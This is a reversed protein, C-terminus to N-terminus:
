PQQLACIQLLELLPSQTVLVHWALQPTIWSRGSMGTGVSYQACAHQVNCLVRVSSTAEALNGM